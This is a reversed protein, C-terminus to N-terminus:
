PVTNIETTGLFTVSGGVGITLNGIKSAVGTRSTQTSNWGGDFTFGKTFTLASELSYGAPFNNKDRVRMVQGTNTQIASHADSILSYYSDTAGLRVIGGSTFTATATSNAALTFSCAGTGSCSSASGTGSWGTFTGVTPTATCSVSAGNPYSNAPLSAPAPTKFTPSPTSGCDITGSGSGATGTTFTYPLAFNGTISVAASASANYLYNGGSVTFTGTGPLGVNKLYYGSDPTITLEPYSLTSKVYLKGDVGMTAGSITGNSGQTVTLANMMPGIFSGFASPHMGVEVDAQKVGDDNFYSIVGKLNPESGTVKFNNAVYVNYPSVPSVSIGYPGTTSDDTTCSVSNDATTIVAINYFPSQMSNLTVYVLSGDNPQAAVATPYTGAGCGSLAVTTVGLTGTNVISVSNGYMNAVYLKSGYLAVGVPYTGVAVPDSVSYAIGDSTSIVSVTSSGTNAVYIKSGDSNTIIGDPGDGVNLTIIDVDHDDVTGSILATDYVTVTSDDANTVYLRSGAPNVALGGPVQSLKVTGIVTSDKRSSDIVSITKSLQNSVYVRDGNGSIAVGYPHTPNAANVPDYITVTAFTSNDSTDIISVTDLGTGSGSNTIYAFPAADAINVFMFM